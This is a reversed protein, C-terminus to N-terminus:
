YTEFKKGNFKKLWRQTKLYKCFVPKYAIQHSFKLLRPLQCRTTQIWYGMDKGFFATRNASFILLNPILGKVDHRQFPRRERSDFRNKKMLM